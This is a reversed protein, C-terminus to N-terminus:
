PIVHGEEVNAGRPRRRRGVGNAASQTEEGRRHGHGLGSVRTLVLSSPRCKCCSVSAVVYSQLLHFIQFMHKCCIHIAVAIYAVDLYFVQLICRFCIFCKSYVSAVYMHFVKCYICCESRSKCCGYSVSAVYRQFMQFVEFMCKCCVSEVYCKRASSAAPM